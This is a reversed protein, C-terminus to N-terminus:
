QVRVNAIQYALSPITNNFADQVTGWWSDYQEGQAPDPWDTSYPTYVFPGYSPQVIGPAGSYAQAGAQAWPMWPLYKGDRYTTWPRFTRRAGIWKVLAARANTLPDLLQYDIGVSPVSNGPTIQWLGWGTLAYPQGQQIADPRAGAEPMTIATAIVAQDPPFGAQLAVAYIAAAPLRGSM